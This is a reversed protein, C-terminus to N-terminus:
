KRSGFLFGSYMLINLAPEPPGGVEFTAGLGGRLGLVFGFRKWPRALYRAEVSPGFVAAYSHAGEVQGAVAVDVGFGMSLQNRKKGWTTTSPYWHVSGTYWTGLLGAGVGAEVSTEDHVFIEINANINGPLGVGPIKVILWPQKWAEDTPAIAPLGIGRQHALALIEESTVEVIEAQNNAILAAVVKGSFVAPSYVGPAALATISSLFVSVLLLIPM